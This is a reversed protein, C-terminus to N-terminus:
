FVVLLCMVIYKDHQVAGLDIRKLYKKNLYGESIDVGAVHLVKLEQSSYGITVYKM